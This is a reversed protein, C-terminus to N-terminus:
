HRLYALDAALTEVPDAAAVYDPNHIPDLPEMAGGQRAYPYQIGDRTVVIM